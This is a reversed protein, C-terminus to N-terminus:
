PARWATQPGRRTAYPRAGRVPARRSRSAAVRGGAGLSTYPRTRSSHRRGAQGALLLLDCGLWAPRGEPTPHSVARGHALCALNSVATACTVSDEPDVIVMIPAM